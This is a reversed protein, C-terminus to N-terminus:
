SWSKVDIDCVKFTSANRRPEKGREEGQLKKTLIPEIVELQLLYRHLQFVYCVRFEEEGQGLSAKKIYRKSSAQSFIRFRRSAV